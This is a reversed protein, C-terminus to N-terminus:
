KRSLNIKDFYSIVNIRKCQKDALIGCTREALWSDVKTKILKKKIYVNELQLINNVDEKNIIFFSHAAGTIIEDGNMKAIFDLDTDKYLEILEKFYGGASIPANYSCTYITGNEYYDKDLDIIRKNPTLSDQIFMYVNYNDYKEFAYKWAGLEWNKNKCYEINCDDPIYDFNIKYDSDSDIIVIDFEEYFIKISNITNLLITKNPNKTSIVCLRNKM